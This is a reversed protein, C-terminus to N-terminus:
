SFNYLLRFRGFVVILNELPQALCFLLSFDKFQSNILPYTTIAGRVYRKIFDRQQYVKVNMKQKLSYCLDSRDIIITLSILIRIFAKFLPRM